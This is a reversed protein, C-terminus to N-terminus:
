QINVQDFSKENHCRDCVRGFNGNHVDDAAHCAYCTSPIKVKEKMEGHHCSLCDIGKHAGKLKFDTQKDHDFSWAKWDVSNHCLGCQKGLRKKHVDDAKHCSICKYKADKFESSLHCEECALTAHAGLLPFRTIDHDFRVEKQWGKESHCQYCKKGQQGQHVDNQSHCSYCDASVKKYVDGPHCDKCAVSKHKGTLRFDTKNHDFKTKSWGETTHCDQCKKGFQGKHEDTFKHCSYCDTKVKKVYANDGKPHCQNCTVIKHKGTLKFKTDKDHDFKPSSWGQPSHCKDCKEGFRGQHQDDNKHCAYCKTPVSLYREQPHCDRCEVGKHKGHLPFKTKDHDYQFDNWTSERHCSNCVKGLKGKHPEDKKHCDICEHKAEHYKKGVKHCAQCAVTLHSGRLAFDTANHDFTQMDLLVISVNRGQHERHCVRCEKTDIDTIRGHFGKKNKIDDAINKHDHCDLCLVSQKGQHFFKHCNKCDVEFKAHAKSLEGPMLAHEMSDVMDDAYAIKVSLVLMVAVIVRFGYEKATVM